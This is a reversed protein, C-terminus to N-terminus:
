AAEPDDTQDIAGEAKGAEGTMRFAYAAAFPGITEFIAVLAFVIAGIRAGIDPALEYTNAVLGIAMGAMPVLLLSTGTAQKSTQGTYPSVSFVALFKGSVRALAIFIPALGALWLDTFNIKAGAMVFLIIFFLDGGEGLGIRSLRSNSTEYRRVTMGLVLASLLASVGTMSSLGVTLMIAGIVIVFRYHLEDDKLRKAVQCALHGSLVGILVAGMLRYAPVVIIDIMGADEVRMIAFPIAISFAIFSLLNNFAVLSKARETVPGKAHMEESVHVLVAPSSSLAIAAILAALTSGYGLLLVTTFVFTFTVFAEVTATAILRRSKMMAKPHLMNGLKYLILGLSIDILVSAEALTQKNLLHLGQPGILVGLCMFATITPIWRIRSAVIGGFVGALLLIGFAVMVNPQIASIMMMYDM